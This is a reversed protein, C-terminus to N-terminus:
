PPWSLFGEETLPMVSVLAEEDGYVLPTISGRENCECDEDIGTADTALWSAILSGAAIDADVRNGHQSTLTQSGHSMTVVWTNTNNM